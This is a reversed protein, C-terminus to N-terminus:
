LTDPDVGRNRLWAAGQPVNPHEIARFIVFGAVARTLAADTEALEEHAYAMHRLAM